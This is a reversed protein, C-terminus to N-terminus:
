DGDTDSNNPDTGHITVEDGDSLGDGDTDSENPDTEHITVEDDDSLGDDDADLEYKLIFVDASGAGYYYTYGTIIANGSADLVIGHGEDHDWVGSTKNLLLDGSSNYKFIFADSRTYGTIIANGSVDLVIGYGVDSYSDRWTRNWLLNGSSNYKLLLM